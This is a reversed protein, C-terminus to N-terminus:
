DSIQIPEKLQTAVNVFCINFINAIEKENLSFKNNLKVGLTKDQSQGKARTGFNRFLKGSPNLIMKVM